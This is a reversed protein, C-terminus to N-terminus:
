PQAERPRRRRYMALWFLGMAALTAGGGLRLTNMVALGYKGSRPDYHLCYLLIEDVPTGIREASAEVLALRLDRASYELGYFYRSFRGDPTLVMIGSAHAFQKSVPDYRYRFGAVRAAAAISAEDGTLFHWGREGGDRRYRELYEAKKQAALDPTEAPDISIAVIEYDQGANLSIARAARLTGNMVLTCLMPCRYYVFALVVPKGHFYRGLPVTAGSEDHFPLSLDLQANLNQDIGIGKLADPVTKAGALPAGATLILGLSVISKRLM